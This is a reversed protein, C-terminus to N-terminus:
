AQTFLLGAPCRPSSSVRPIFPPRKRACFLNDPFFHDPQTGLDSNIKTFKIYHLLIYPIHVKHVEFKTTTQYKNFSKHYMKYKWITVHVHVHIYFSNPM